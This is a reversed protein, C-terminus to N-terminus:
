IEGRFHTDKCSHTKGNRMTYIMSIIDTRRCFLFGAKRGVIPPSINQKLNFPRGSIPLASKQAQQAQAGEDLRVCMGPAIGRSM